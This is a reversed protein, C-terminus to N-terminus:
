APSSDSARATMRGSTSAGAPYKVALGRKGRRRVSRGTTKDVTANKVATAEAFSTAYSSAQPSSQLRPFPPPAGIVDGELLGSFNRAALAKNAHIAFPDLALSIMSVASFYPM